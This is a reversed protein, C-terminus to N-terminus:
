SSTGRGTGHAYWSKGDFSPRSASLEPFSDPHNIKPKKGPKHWLAGGTLVRDHRKCRVLGGISEAPAPGLTKARVDAHQVDNGGIKAVAQPASVCAAIAVAAIAHNALRRM